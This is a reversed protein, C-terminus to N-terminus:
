LIGKRIKKLDPNEESCFFPVEEFVQLLVIVHKMLKSVVTTFHFPDRFSFVTNLTDFM